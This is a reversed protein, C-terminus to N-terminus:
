SCEDIFKKNKYKHAFELYLEHIAVVIDDKEKDTIADKEKDTNDINMYYEELNLINQLVMDVNVVANKTLSDIEDRGIIKEFELMSNVGEEYNHCVVKLKSRYIYYSIMRYRVHQQGANYGIADGTIMPTEIIDNTLVPCLIYNCIYKWFLTYEKGDFIRYNANLIKPIIDNYFDYLRM